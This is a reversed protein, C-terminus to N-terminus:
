LVRINMEANVLARWRYKEQALGIWDVVNVGIELLDTKINDIWSSFSTSIKLKYKKLISQLQLWDCPLYEHLEFRRCYIEGFCKGANVLTCPTVDLFVTSKLTV